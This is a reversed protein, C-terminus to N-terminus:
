HKGSYNRIIATYTVGPHVAGKEYAGPIINQMPSFLRGPIWLALMFFEVKALTVDPCSIWDEISLTLFIEGLSEQAISIQQSM